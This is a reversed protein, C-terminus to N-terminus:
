APGMPQASRVSADESSRVGNVAAEATRVADAASAAYGEAVPLLDRAVSWRWRGDRPGGVIRYIRLDFFDRSRAACEEVGLPGVAWTRRWPLRPRPGALITEASASPTMSVGRNHVPRIAARDGTGGHEAFNM